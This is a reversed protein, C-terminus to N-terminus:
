QFQWSLYDSETNIYLKALVIFVTETKKNRELSKLLINM